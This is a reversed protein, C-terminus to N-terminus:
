PAPSIREKLPRRARLARPEPLYRTSQPRPAPASKGEVRVRWATTVFLVVGSWFFMGYFQAVKHGQGKALLRPISDGEAADAEQEARAVHGKSHAFLNGVETSTTAMLTTSLLLAGGIVARAGRSIRADFARYALYTFPLLVTVYHHKWSRESIFLMALVVLAFEGLLRPDDRRDTKTRCFWALLGLLGVSCYARLRWFVVMKPDLTFLHLHQLQVSYRESGVQKTLIRMVVGVMSQNIEQVGAVDSEVYPRM